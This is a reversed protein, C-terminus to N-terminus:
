VLAYLLLSTVLAFLWGKLTSVQVLREPHTGFLLLVRDSLLLWLSSWVAYLLTVRPAWSQTQSLQPQM